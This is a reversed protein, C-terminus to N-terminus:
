RYPDLVTRREEPAMARYVAQANDRAGPVGHMEAQQYLSFARALDRRLGVGNANMWALLETAQGDGDEARARVANVAFPGPKGGAVEQVVQLWPMDGQDAPLDIAPASARAAALAEEPTLPKREPLPAIGRRLFYAPLEGDHEGRVASRYIEDLSPGAARAPVASLVGLFIAAGVFATRGLATTRSFQSPATM